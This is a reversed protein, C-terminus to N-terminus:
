QNCTNRLVQFKSLVSLNNATNADPRFHWCLARVWVSRDGETYLGSKPVSTDSQQTFGSWGGKYDSSDM